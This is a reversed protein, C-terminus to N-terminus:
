QWIGGGRRRGGGRRWGCRPDRCHRCATVSRVINCGHSIVEVLISNLRRIKEITVGVGQKQEMPAGSRISGQREHPEWAEDDHIVRVLGTYCRGLRDGRTM